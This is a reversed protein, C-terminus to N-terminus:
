IKPSDNNLNNSCFRCVKANPMIMEACRPCPVRENEPHEVVRYNPALNNHNKQPQINSQLPNGIKNLTNPVKFVGYIGILWACLYIYAGAGVKWHYDDGMLSIVDGHTILGVLGTAALCISIKGALGWSVKQVANLWPIIWLLLLIFYEGDWGSHSFVGMVQWSLFMSFFAM